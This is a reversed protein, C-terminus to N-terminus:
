KEVTFIDEVQRTVYRAGKINHYRNVGAMQILGQSAITEMATKIVEESLGEAPDAVGLSCAKGEETLFLLELRKEM